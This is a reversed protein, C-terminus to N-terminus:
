REVELELEPEAMAKPKELRAPHGAPALPLSRAVRAQQAV